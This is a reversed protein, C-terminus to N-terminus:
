LVRGLAINQSSLGKPNLCRLVNDRPVQASLLKDALWVYTQRPGRPLPPRPFFCLPVKRPAACPMLKGATAHPYSMLKDTPTSAQIGLPVIGCRRIWAGSGYTQVAAKGPVTEKEPVYTQGLCLNTRLVPCLNTRPQM